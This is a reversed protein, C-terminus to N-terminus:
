ASLKKAKRKKNRKAKAKCPCTDSKEFGPCNTTLRQNGTPGNAIKFKNTSGKPTLVIYQSGRKAKPDKIVTAMKGAARLKKARETADSKKHGSTSVKMGNALHKLHSPVAGGIKPSAKSTAKSTKKTPAKKKFEPGGAGVKVFSKSAKKKKTPNGKIKKPGGAGVETKGSAAAKARKKAQAKQAKTATKAKGFGARGSGKACVNGGQFGGSGIGCNSGKAANGVFEITTQAEDTKVKKYHTTSVVEVSDGKLSLSNASRTYGQKYLKGASRYIFHKPYVDRVYVYAHPDSAKVNKEILKSLGESIDTHSMMNVTPQFEEAASNTNVGCGDKLSCAGTENELIALHDPSYGVLEHTYRKGRFIGSKARVNTFLGTSLEVRDGRRVKTLLKPAKKKMLEIDFYAEAKLKGNVYKTNQVLGVNWVDATKPDNNASIHAGSGDKPHGLTLPMGNWRFVRDNVKSGYLIAGNNGRLVGQNIMLVPAVLFKRGRFTVEKPKASANTSVAAFM